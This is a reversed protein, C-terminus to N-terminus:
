EAAIPRRSALADDCLTKFIETLLGQAAALGDGAGDLHRDLYRSRDMEIQLAHVNRKPNGHRDLSYGGAYPTNRASPFGAHRVINEIIDGFAGDASRGFRDGIVVAPPAAHRQMHRIPPMSHCDLLIAIGFRSRAAALAAAVADHYPTHVDRIRRHLEDSSFKRRWLSPGGGIHRPVLGLGNRARSSHILGEPLVGEIMGTDIERPDRNLDIWARAHGAVFVTAGQAIAPAVLLDAHRDELQRLRSLPVASDAILSAPYHRGAHPVAIVVPVDPIPPGHRTFPVPATLDSVM